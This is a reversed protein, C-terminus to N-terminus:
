FRLIVRSFIMLEQYSYPQGGFDSRSVGANLQLRRGFQESYGISYIRLKSNQDSGNDTSTQVVASVQLSSRQSLAHSFSVGIRQQKVASAGSLNGIGPLPGALASTDTQGALVTISRRTGLLSFTLEQERRLTPSNTQIAQIPLTGGTLGNNRLYANVLDTRKDADPEISAFQAFLLDFLPGQLGGGGLGVALSIDKVDRFSIVSRPTRREFTVRHGNGFFRRTQQADLLIREAPRWRLGYGFNNYRERTNSLYDNWEQGILGVVIFQPALIFNIGSEVRYAQYDRQSVYDVHNSEVSLDLSIRKNSKNQRLVAGIEDINTDNIKQGSRVINKRYRINYDAMGSLSGIAYPSIYYNSVTDVNAVDRSADAPQIGLLSRTSRSRQGGLDVYIHNPLAEFTLGANLVGQSSNPLSGRAYTFTRLSYDFFGRFRGKGNTIRIGPSIETIFDGTKHTNSYAVNDTYVLGLELRPVIEMGRRASAGSQFRTLGGEQNGSGGIGTTAPISSGAGTLGGISLQARSQYPMLVMMAM